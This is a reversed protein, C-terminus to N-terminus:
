DKLMSCMIEHQHQHRPHHRHWQVYQRAYVRNCKTYWSLDDDNFMRLNHQMRLIFSEFACLSFWTVCRMGVIECSALMFSSSNM